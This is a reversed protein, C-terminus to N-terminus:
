EVIVRAPRIVRDGIKYGKQIVKKVRNFKQEAPGGEASKVPHIKNEEMGIAECTGPDFDDGEKLDIMSVGNEFLVGELQKQIYTLGMVWGGEKQDDPVHSLSSNFNDLVPIIQLIINQSAYRIMDKQAESQTKKYNEFDAQCRQWGELYEKSKDNKIESKDVEANKEQKKNEKKM